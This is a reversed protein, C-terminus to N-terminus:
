KFEGALDYVSKPYMNTEGKGQKQGFLFVQKTQPVVLTFATGCFVRCIGENLTEFLRILRPVMEDKQEAHGLRGNGGFGWSFCRKKSDIAVTHNNGCAFDVIKVDGVPKFKDDLTKEMFLVIRQPSLVFNFSLRNATIFYKGDTNHGLQGYEPLGCTHLNGDADLIVSFEAGCGVKIIRPGDYDIRTVSKIRATSKGVGCQGSKNNGVAYVHGKDTLFLTHNRGVAADVINFGELGSVATPLNVTDMDSHGLQYANNRGSIYIRILSMRTKIM